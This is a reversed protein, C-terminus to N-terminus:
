KLGAESTAQELLEKLGLRDAWQRLYAYDLTAAQVKLVGLVDNWQRESVGGGMRYWDLKRLIVDEPSALYFSYAATDNVSEELTDKHVRQFAIQDFPQEKPIFLDIKVMTSYHILNFTARQRIANTLMNQDVYYAEHLRNIFPQVHDLRLDAVIDVDLTTRGIGYVSSAVSGGIHYAVGLAHLAEVVPKLADIIDSAIM